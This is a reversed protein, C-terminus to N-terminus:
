RSPSEKDPAISGSSGAYRGPAINDDGATIASHAKRPNRVVMVPCPSRGLVGQTFSGLLFGAPGSIRGSALIVLTAGVEAAVRAIGEDIEESHRLVEVRTTVRLGELQEAKRELFMRREACLYALGEKRSETVVRGLEVAPMFVNLLVVDADAVRALRSVEPLVVDAKDTLDLPVLLVMTGSASSAPMQALESSTAVEPKPVTVLLMPLGARQLTETAVSGLVVRSLGSRGRTAMAIADVDQERALDAIRVAPEGVPTHLTINVGARRFTVAVNELSEVADAQEAQRDEYVFAGAEASVTPLVRVLSVEAGITQALARTPEVAEAALTSGDLTLMLRPPRQTPWVRQSIAPVLLVPIPAARLVQEAVSGYLWRGLGSRGHTSMVIMAANERRATQVIVEAPNGFLTTSIEVNVAVGSDRLRNAVSDMEARAVPELVLPKGRPPTPTLVRVLLLGSDRARALAVAHPLAREAFASGDLPALVCGIM